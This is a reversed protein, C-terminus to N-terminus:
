AATLDRSAASVVGVLGAVAAGLALLAPASSRRLLV